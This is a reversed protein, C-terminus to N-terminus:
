RGRGPDGRGREREREAARDRQRAIERELDERLEPRADLAREMEELRGRAELERGLSAELAPVRGKLAEVERALRDRELRLRRAAAELAAARVAESKLAEVQAATVGRVAGTPTSRPEIGRALAEASRAREASELARGLAAVEDRLRAAEGVARERRLEEVARNGDRTAGNLVGVDRGM